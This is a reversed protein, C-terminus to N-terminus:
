TQSIAALEIWPLMYQHWFLWTLKCAQDDGHCRGSADERYGHGRNIGSGFAPHDVECARHSRPKAFAVDAYTGQTWLLNVSGHHARGLEQHNAQEDIMYAGTLSAFVIIPNIHSMNEVSTTYSANGAHTTIFIMHGLVDLIPDYWAESNMESPRRHMVSALQRHRAEFDIPYPM